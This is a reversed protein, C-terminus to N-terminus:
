DLYTKSASMDHRGKRAGPEVVCQLSSQGSSRPSFFHGYVANVNQDPARLDYITGAIRPEKPIDGDLAIAQQLDRRGSADGQLRRALYYVRLAHDDAGAEDVDETM